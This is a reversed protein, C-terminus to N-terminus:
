KHCLLRLIRRRSSGTCRRMDIIMRVQLPYDDILDSMSACARIGESIWANFLEGSAKWRLITRVSVKCDLGEETPFELLCSAIKRKAM